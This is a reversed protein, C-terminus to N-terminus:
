GEKEKNLKELIYKSFNSINNLLKIKNIGKSNALKIYRLTKYDRYFENLYVSNFEIRSYLFKEGMTVLYGSISCGDPQNLRFDWHYKFKCFEDIYIYADFDKLKPNKTLVKGNVDKYQIGTEKNLLNKLVTNWLFNLYELDTLQYKKNTDPPIIYDISTNSLYAKAFADAQLEFESDVEGQNRHPTNSNHNFVIHGIEHLLVFKKCSFPISDNIFIDWEGNYKETEAIKDMELFHLNIEFVEILKKFDLKEFDSKKLNTM